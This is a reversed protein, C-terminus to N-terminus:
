VVEVAGFTIGYTSVEDAAWSTENSALRFLGSASTLDASVASRTKRLSPWIELNAASGTGTFDQIVKHLTSDSGTGLQIYDGALLTDGSTVTASVTRDGAAGSITAATATGRPSTADPDNLLFSGFRGRLSILFSIWQEAQSRKMRPLTIDAEWREGTYAHTQGAFTFPSESYATANVMTWRIQSIGTATPLDLPYTIAM